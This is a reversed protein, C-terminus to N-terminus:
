LHKVLWDIATQQKTFLKMPIEVKAVTLYVNGIALGVPNGDVVMGVAKFRSGVNKGSYQKRADPSLPRAKRIDVCVPRKEGGVAEVCADLNAIADEVSQELDPQIQVVIIGRQNVGIRATRTQITVLASSM